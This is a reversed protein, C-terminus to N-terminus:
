IKRLELITDHTLRRQFKRDLKREKIVKYGIKQYKKLVQKIKITDSLHNSEFQIKKPWYIREKSELYILLSDLIFIDFGETDIKLFDIMRVNYEVLIEALPIMKIKDKQVIHQLNHRKHEPHFDNISNCGKFGEPWGLLEIDRPLLYFIYGEKAETSDSIACNIKIVNKKNPLNDLYFKLPEITIGYTSDDAKDILTDYDSTGIEIFDLDLM